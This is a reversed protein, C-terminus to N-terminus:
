NQDRLQHIEFRLENTKKEFNNNRSKALDLEELKETLLKNTEIFNINQEQVSKFENRNRKIQEQFNSISKLYEQLQCNHQHKVNQMEDKLETMKKIYISQTKDLDKSSQLKIQEIMSYSDLQTESQRSCHQKTLSSIEHHANLQM